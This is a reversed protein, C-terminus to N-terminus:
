RASYSGLLFVGLFILCCGLLQQSSFREALFVYSGFFMLPYTFATLAFTLSLPNKSVVYYWLIAASIMLFGALWCWIDQVLNGFYAPLLDLSIPVEGHTTTFRKKIILQSSCTGLIAVLLILMDSLSVKM